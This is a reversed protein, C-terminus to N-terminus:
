VEKNKIEREAKQIMEQIGRHGRKYAISAATNGHSDKAFVNVGALLIAKVKKDDGQYAAELLGLSREHHNARSGERDRTLLAENYYERLSKESINPEQWLHNKRM